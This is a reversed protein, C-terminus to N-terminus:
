PASPSARAIVDEYSQWGSPTPALGFHLYGGAVIALRDRIAEVREVLEDQVIFARAECHTAIYEIEAAVLRFNVPVAVLGGPGRAGAGRVDGDVRPLQLRAARRPRGQSPWAGATRQRAPQRAREM